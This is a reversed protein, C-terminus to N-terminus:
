FIGGLKARCFGCKGDKIHVEFVSRKIVEKGCKPCMTSCSGLYVFKLGLECAMRRISSETEHGAIGSIHWPMLPNLLAIFEAIKRLERENDNLGPIIVTDIEVWAGSEATEKINKQVQSLKGGALKLFADRDCSPLSFIFADAYKFLDKLPKEYAYGNTRVIVKLKKARALRAVEIMGEFFVFPEEGTFAVARCGSKLAKRVLQDSPAKKMKSLVKEIDEEKKPYRLNNGVSRICFVKIGPMFNYLNLSEVPKDAEEFYKQYNLSYLRGKNNERVRCLGRGGPSILCQNCCLSCVVRDSKLRKTYLCEKM